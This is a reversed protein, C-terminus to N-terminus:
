AQAKLKEPKLQVRRLERDYDDLAKRFTELISKNCHIFIVYKEIHERSFDDRLKAYLSEACEPSISVTQYGDIEAKKSYRLFVELMKRQPLIKPEEPNPGLRWLKVQQSFSMAYKQASYWTYM